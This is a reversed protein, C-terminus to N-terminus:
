SSAKQRPHDGCAKRCLSETLLMLVSSRVSSTSDDRASARGAGPPSPHPSSPPGLTMEDALLGPARSEGVDPRTRWRVAPHPGAAPNPM